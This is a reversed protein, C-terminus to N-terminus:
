LYISENWQNILEECRNKIEENKTKEKLKNLFETRKEIARFEAEGSYYLKGELYEKMQWAKQIIFSAADVPDQVGYRNLWVAAECERLQSLGNIEVIQRIYTRLFNYYGAKKILNLAERVKQKFIPTGQVRLRHKFGKKISKRAKMWEQITYIREPFKEENM